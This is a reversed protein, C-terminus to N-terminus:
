AVPLAPPYTDVSACGALLGMALMGTTVTTRVLDM